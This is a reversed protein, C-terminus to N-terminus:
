TSNEEGLLENKQLQVEVGRKSKFGEDWGFYPLFEGNQRGDSRVDSANHELDGSEHSPTLPVKIPQGHLDNIDEALDPM